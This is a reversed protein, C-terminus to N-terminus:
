HFTLSIGTTAMKNKVILVFINGSLSKYYHVCGAFKFPKDKFGISSLRKINSTMGYIPITVESVVQPLFCYNSHNSM